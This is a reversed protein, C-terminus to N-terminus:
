KSDDRQADRPLTKGFFRRETVLLQAQLRHWVEKWSSRLKGLQATTPKKGGKVDFFRMPIHFYHSLREQVEKDIQHPAKNLADPHTYLAFVTEDETGRTLERLELMDEILWKVRDKDLEKKWPWHCFPDSIVVTRLGARIARLVEVKLSYPEPDAFLEGPSERVIKTLHPWDGYDDWVQINHFFVKVKCGTIGPWILMDIKEDYDSDLRMDVYQRNALFGPRKADGVLIPILQLNQKNTLSLARYYEEEVWRSEMSKQTIVLGVSRSSDLGSELDRAFIDGPRIQENDLWVQVGRNQLEHRLRNVWDSDGSWYSLFIDFKPLEM